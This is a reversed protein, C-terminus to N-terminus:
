GAPPLCRLVLTDSDKRPASHAVAKLRLSLKGARTGKKTLRVRIRASSGCAAETAPLAPLPLRLTSPKVTIREVVPDLL